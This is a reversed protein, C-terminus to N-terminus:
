FSASLLEPEFGVWEPWSQNPPSPLTEARTASGVFLDILAGMERMHEIINMEEYINIAELAVAVGVPRGSNTFGHGFNGGAKNLEKVAEYIAPAVVITSIPFDSAREIITGAHDEGSM